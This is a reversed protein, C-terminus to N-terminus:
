PECKGSELPNRSARPSPAKFHLDLLEHLLTLTLSEHTDYNDKITTNKTWAENLSAIVVGPRDLGLFSANLDPTSRSRTCAYLSETMSKRLKVLPSKKVSIPDLTLHYKHALADEPDYIIKFDLGKSDAKKAVKHSTVLFLEGELDRIQQVADNFTVFYDWMQSCREGRYFILVCFRYEMIKDDLWRDIPGNRPTSIPGDVESLSLSRM